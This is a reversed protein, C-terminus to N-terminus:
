PRRRPLALYVLWASLAMTGGGFLLFMVVFAQALMRSQSDASFLSGAMMGVMPVTCLTSPVLVVLGIVLLAINTKAPSKADKPPPDQSM